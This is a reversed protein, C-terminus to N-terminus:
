HTGDFLALYKSKDVFQARGLFVEVGLEKTFREASDHPSIEARIRRIREMIKAFDVEIASEPNKVSIGSDALFEANKVTHALHAAHILSKSPVGLLPLKPLISCSQSFCYHRFQFVIHNLICLECGVNLCDGGLLNAEILAVRAGVGAAGSSTVLGAAGGGIVVLDYKNEAKPDEWGTPHVNNLLALNHADLPWLNSGAELDKHPLYELDLGPLPMDPQLSLNANNNSSSSTTPVLYDSWNFKKGTLENISIDGREVFHYFLYDDKFQHDRTVHEFLSLETMISQGLLVAEERTASLGGRVMFDVAEKGVFCQQFTTLRYKRDKIDVGARFRSAIDKLPDTSGIDEENM